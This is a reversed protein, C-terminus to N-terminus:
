GSIAAGLLEAQAKRNKPFLDIYVSETIRTSAHGMWESIYMSPIKASVCISAYTHRLDHATLETEGDDDIYLEALKAAPHLVRKNWNTRRIPGGNAAAFVHADPGKGAVHNRLEDVLPGDPLDLTRRKGGKPLGLVLKGGVDNYAEFVRVHLGDLDLNKVRLAAFEGIRLGTYALFRVALGDASAPAAPIIPAGDDDHDLTREADYDRGKRTVNARLGHLYDAAAALREVKARDLFHKDVNDEIEPLEAGRAPNVRMLGDSAAQHLVSSFVQHCRHVTAPAMKPKLEDIWLNIDRVGIRGVERSGWFPLVHNNLVSTYNARTTEAKRKNSVSRELSELWTDAVVEFATESKRRDIHTGTSLENTLRVHEASAEAKTEFAPYRQKGGLDVYRVQWRLKSKPVEVGDVVKWGSPRKVRQRFDTYHADFLKKQVTGPDRRPKRRPTESNSVTAVIALSRKRSCVGISAFPAYTIWDNDIDSTATRPARAPLESAASYPYDSLVTAVCRMARTNRSATRM